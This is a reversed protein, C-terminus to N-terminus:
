LYGAETDEWFFTAKGESLLRVWPKEAGGVTLADTLPRELRLHKGVALNEKMKCSYKGIDKGTFWRCVSM